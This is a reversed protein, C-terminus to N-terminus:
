ALSGSDPQLAQQVAGADPSVILVGDDQVAVFRGGSIGRLPGKWQGVAALSGTVRDWALISDHNKYPSIFLAVSDAVSLAHAGRLGAPVAFVEQERTAVDLRVLPFEGYPFFWVVNGGGNTLAYCDDIMVAAAGFQTTYGFDLSGDASFVALGQQSLPDGSYVGEDFYSVVIRSGCVVVDEIAWGAAFSAVIRGHKSMVHANAADRASDSDIVVVHDDDLMRIRPLRASFGLRCKWAPGIVEFGDRARVLAVLGGSGGVDADIV